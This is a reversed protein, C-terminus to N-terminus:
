WLSDHDECLGFLGEVGLEVGGFRVTGRFEGQLQRFVSRVLGLRLREQRAAEPLFRLEVGGDVTRVNWAGMGASPHEFCAPGLHQIAGDLWLANENISSEDPNANHTLNLGLWRGDALRGALTAWEWRTHWPYYAKHVDLIAFSTAPEARYRSAGAEIEGEVPLVAKHSYMYRGPGVPMCVVLPQNQELDQRCRLSAWLPPGSRSREVSACLLHEGAALRNEIEVRYGGAEAWTRDYWLDAAVGVDLFPGRRSHDVPAGGRRGRLYCWSGRIWGLDVVAVGLFADPLVFAFHQWKKFRFRALSKPLELPGLRFRAQELNARPCAEAFVGALVEGREDVLAPPARHVEIM